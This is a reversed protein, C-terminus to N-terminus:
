HRRLPVEEAETPVVTSIEVRYNLPNLVHLFPAVNQFKEYIVDVLEYLERERDADIPGVELWLHVTERDASVWLRRVDPRSQTAEAFTAGVARANARVDVVM